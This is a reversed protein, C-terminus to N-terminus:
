SKNREVISKLDPPQFNASKTVKGDARYVPKGDDGLKSLNSRHIERLAENRMKHFGLSLWCGAMVYELDGLADLVAVVDQAALAAVLEDLEEDILNIRLENLAPDTIHPSDHIPQSFTRHFEAVLQLADVPEDDCRGCRGPGPACRCKM